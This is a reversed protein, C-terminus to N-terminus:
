DYRIVYQLVVEDLMEGVYLRTKGRRVGQHATHPLYKPIAGIICARLVVNQLCRRCSEDYQAPAKAARSFRPAPPPVQV